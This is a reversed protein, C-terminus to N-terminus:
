TLRALACRYYSTSVNEVDSKSVLSAQAVDLNQALLTRIGKMSTVAQGQSYGGQQLHKVLSYTDFHHMYPPPQMPPHGKRLQEITEEPPGMHLVEELPGSQKAEERALRARELGEVPPAEKPEAPDSTTSPPTPAHKAETEPEPEPESTENQVESSTPAIAATMSGEVEGAVEAPQALQQQATAANKGRDVKRPEVGKGHRPAFTGKWARTSATDWGGRSISRATTARLLHPYLFILRGIAM